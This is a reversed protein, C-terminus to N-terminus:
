LELLKTIMKQDKSLKIAEFITEQAKEVDGLKYSILGKSLLLEALNLTFDNGINKHM